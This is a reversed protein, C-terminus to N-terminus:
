YVPNLHGKWLTYGSLDLKEDAVPRKLKLNDVRQPVDSPKLSLKSIPKKTGEAHWICYDKANWTERWCCVGGLDAPVDSDATEYRCRETVDVM